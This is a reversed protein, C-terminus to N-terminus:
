VNGATRENSATVLHTTEVTDRITNRMKYWAPSNKISFTKRPFPALPVAIIGSSACSCAAETYIIVIDRQM